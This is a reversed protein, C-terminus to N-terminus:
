QNEKKMSEFENNIQMAQQLSKLRETEYEAIAKRQALFHLEQEINHMEQQYDVVEYHTKTKLMSPDFQFNPKELNEYETIAKSIGAKAEEIQKLLDDLRRQLTEKKPLNEFERMKENMFKNEIEWHRNWKQFEEYKFLRWHQNSLKSSISEHEGGNLVIEYQKIVLDVPDPSVPPQKFRMTRNQALFKATEVEEATPIKMDRIIREAEQERQNLADEQETINISNAEAQDRRVKAQELRFIAQKKRADIESLADIARRARERAEGLRDDLLQEITENELQKCLHKSAKKELALAETEHKITEEEMDKVLNTMRDVHESKLLTSESRIIKKSELDLITLQSNLEEESLDAFEPDIETPPNSIENLINQLLSNFDKESQVIKRNTALSTTTQVKISAHRDEEFVRRLQQNVKELKDDIKKRQEILNNQETALKKAQTRLTHSKSHMNMQAEQIKKGAMSKIQLGSTLSKSTKM